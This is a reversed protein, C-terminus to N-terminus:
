RYNKRAYFYMKLSRRLIDSKNTNDMDSLQEIMHIDNDDLRVELRNSRSTEKRPRGRGRGDTGKGLRKGVGTKSNM